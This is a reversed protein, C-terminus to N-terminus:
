QVVKTARIRMEPPVQLGLRKATQLNIGLVPEDPLEWPIDPPNTGRLIKDIIAAMREEDRSNVVMYSMLAGVDVADPYLFLTAIHQRTALEVVPGSRATDRTWLYVARFGAAGLESFIRGFEDLPAIRTVTEIGAERAAKDVGRMLSTPTGRPDGEGVIALKKMQPVLRRFHELAKREWDPHRLCVGTVNGKPKRYDDTLGEAVSDDCFAAIPISPTAKRVNRVDFAGWVSVVEVGSKVLAEALPTSREQEIERCQREVRLNAGEKWGVQRLALLLSDQNTSERCTGRWSFFGLAHRAQPNMASARALPPVAAVGLSAILLGRRNM